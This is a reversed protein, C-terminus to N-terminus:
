KVHGVACACGTDRIVVIPGYDLQERALPLEKLAHLAMVNLLDKHRGFKHWIVCVLREIRSNTM